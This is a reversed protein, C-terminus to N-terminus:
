QCAVVRLKTLMVPLEKVVLTASGVSCEVMAGKERGNGVAQQRQFKVGPVVGTVTLM